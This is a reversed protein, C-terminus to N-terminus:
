RMLMGTVLVENFGARLVPGASNTPAPRNALEPQQPHRGQDASGEGPHGVPADGSLRRRGSRRRDPPGVQNPMLHALCLRPFSSPSQFRKLVGAPPFGARYRIPMRGSGLTAHDSPSRPQSAYVPLGYAAHILKSIM